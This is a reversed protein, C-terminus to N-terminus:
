QRCTETGVGVTAGAVHPLLANPTEARDVAVQQGTEVRALRGVIIRPPALGCVGAEDEPFPHELVKGSKSVADVGGRVLPELLLDGSTHRHRRRGLAGADLYPRSLVLSVHRLGEPAGCRLVRCAVPPAIVMACRFAASHSSM